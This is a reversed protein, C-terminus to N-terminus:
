RRRLLLTTSSQSGDVDEFPEVLHLTGNLIHMEAVSKAGDVNHTLTHGGDEITYEGFSDASQKLTITIFKENAFVYKTEMLGEVVAQKFEPNANIYDSDIKFDIVEWKGDLDAHTVPPYSPGCAVFFLLLPLLRFLRM